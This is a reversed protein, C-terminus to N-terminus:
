WAEVPAPWDCPDRHICDCLQTYHEDSIKGCDSVHGLLQDIRDIRKQLVEVDARDACSRKLRENAKESAVSLQKEVEAETMGVRDAEALLCLRLSQTHWMYWSFNRDNVVRQLIYHVAQQAPTATEIPVVHFDPM